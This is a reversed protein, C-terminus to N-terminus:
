RPLTIGAVFYNSSDKLILSLNRGFVSIDVFRKGEPIPIAYRHLYIGRNSFTEITVTTELPRLTRVILFSDKGALIKHVAPPYRDGGRILFQKQPSFAALEKESYPISKFDELSAIAVSHGEKSVVEIMVTDDFCMALGSSNVAVLLKRLRQPIHENVRVRQLFTNEGHASILRYKITDLTGALDVLFIKGSFSIAGIVYNCQERPVHRVLEGKIDYIRTGDDDSKIAYITKESQSLLLSKPFTQGVRITKGGTLALKFVSYGSSIKIVGYITDRTTQQIDYVVVPIEEWSIQTIQRLELLNHGVKSQPVTIEAFYLWLLATALLFTKMKKELDIWPHWPFIIIRAYM